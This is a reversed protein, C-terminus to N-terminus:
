DNKKSLEEDFSKLATELLTDLGKQNDEYSNSILQDPIIGSQSIETGNPYYDKSTNIWVLGGGPLMKILAEGRVGATNEGFIKIDDRVAKLSIIFDEAAKGTSSGSLVLLPIDILVESNKNEIPMSPNDLWVNADSYEAYDPHPLYSYVPDPTGWARYTAINQRTKSHYAPIEAKDTFYQSIEHWVEKFGHRNNRLDIILGKSDQIESIVSDFMRVILVDHFSNLTVSMIDNDYKKHYFLADDWLPKLWNDGSKNRKVVENRNSGDPKLLSLEVESDKIGYLMINLSKNLLRTDDSASVFPSIYDNIYDKTKMGDIKIIKSGSPIAEANKRGINDVIFDGDYYKVSILPYDLYQSFHHPFTVRTGCDKLLATFEQLVLYLDYDNATALVKPIYNKYQQDWNDVGEKYAFNYDVEKWITSLALLKDEDQMNSFVSEGYLVTSVTLLLMLYATRRLIMM